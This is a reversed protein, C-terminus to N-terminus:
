NLKLHIKITSYMRFPFLYSATITYGSNGGTAPSIVTFARGSFRSQHPVDKLKCIYDSQDLFVVMIMGGSNEQSPLLSIIQM